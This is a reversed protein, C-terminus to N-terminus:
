AVGDAVGDADPQGLDRHGGLLEVAGEGGGAVGGSGWSFGDVDLRRGRERAWPSPAPPHPGCEMVLRGGRAPLRTRSSGRQMAPGDAPSSKASRPASTILTSSGVSPSWDRPM